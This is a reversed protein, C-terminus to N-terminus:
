FPKEPRLGLQNKEKLQVQRTGKDDSNAQFISLLVIKPFGFTLKIKGKKTM